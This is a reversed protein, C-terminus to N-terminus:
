TSCLCYFGNPSRLPLASSLYPASLSGIHRPKGVKPIQIITTRKWSSPIYIAHISLSYLNTLYEYDRPELQKLHLMTLGDPGAAIFNSSKKIYKEVLHVTFPSYTHDHDLPRDRLIQHRARRVASDSTHRFTITFQKCFSNAIEQPSPPPLMAGRLAPRQWHRM